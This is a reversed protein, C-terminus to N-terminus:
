SNAGTRPLVGVVSAGANAASHVHLSGGAAGIRDAMNQLGENMGVAAPDYGAGDDRVEFRLGDGAFDLRIVVKADRGAHKSANQLAEVCCFYAAAEVEPALRASEGCCEVSVPLPCREAAVELAALLGDNTLTAPFIGHALDRLEDLAHDVDVRAEDLLAAAASGPEVSRQAMGIRLRLTVLHQQAGDHLDREVRRRAADSATVIRARSERLEEDHVRLRGVMQNFSQGLEDLEDGGLPVVRASYEGRDVVGMAARLVEVRAFVSDRVLQSLPVAFAATFAAAVGLLVLMTQEITLSNTSVATVLAVTSGSFMGFLVLMALLRARLSLGSRPPEFDSPLEAALDRVVPLLAREFMLYTFLGGSAVYVAMAYSWALSGFPSLGFRRGVGIVIPVTWLWYWVAGRV